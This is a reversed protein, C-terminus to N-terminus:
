KEQHTEKQSGIKFISGKEFIPVFKLGKLGVQAFDPFFPTALWPM